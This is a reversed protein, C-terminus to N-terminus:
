GQFRSRVRECARASQDKERPYRPRAGGQLGADQMVAAGSPAPAYTEFTSAKRTTRPQGLM